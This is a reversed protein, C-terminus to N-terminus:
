ITAINEDPLLEAIRDRLQAWISRRRKWVAAYPFAKIASEIEDREHLPISNLVGQKGRLRCADFLLRAQADTMIQSLPAYRRVVYGDYPNKMRQCLEGLRYDARNCRYEFRVWQTAATTTGSRSKIEARKDYICFQRSAKYGLYITQLEQDEGFILARNMHVRKDEIWYENLPVRRVDFTADIRNVRGDYFTERYTPGIVYQLYRALAEAGDRGAKDPSYELKLFNALPSAPRAKITIRQDASITLKYRYRYRGRGEHETVNFRGCAHELREQVLQQHQEEVPLTLELTDIFLRPLTSM